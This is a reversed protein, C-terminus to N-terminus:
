HSAYQMNIKVARLVRLRLATNSDYTTQGDTDCVAYM